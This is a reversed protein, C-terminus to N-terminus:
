WLVLALSVAIAMAALWGQIIKFAGSVTCGRCSFSCLNAIKFTVVGASGENSVGPEFSAICDGQLWECISDEETCTVTGPGLYDVRGSGNPSSPGSFTPSPSATPSRSPRTCSFNSCDGFIAYSVSDTLVNQGRLSSCFLEDQDFSNVQNEPPMLAAYLSAVPDDSIECMSQDVNVAGRNGLRPDVGCNSYKCGSLRFIVNDNGDCYAIYNGPGELDDNLECVDDAWVTTTANPAGSCGLGNYWLRLEFPCLDTGQGNILSTLIFFLLGRLSMSVMSPTTCPFSNHIGCLRRLEHSRM